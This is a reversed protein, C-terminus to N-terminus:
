KRRRKKLIVAILIALTLTILLWFILNSSSKLDIPSTDGILVLGAWYQPSITRGKAMGIYDLKAKQLAEDKPLGKKLYGYFNEIIIASSQEDIKWLSTLISESGAYNFAHALSIMGEGAQYTPKGTECATLIALNSALNQNYIEYSYLSNDEDTVNKAFILRSLEPSVNNSEAHTGIHIIKHEKAQKTFIQKSANENLFSTGNFLKSHKKAIEATFPQSLLTLYTKDFAISDTIKIKYAEKMEDNFEPAFAIFDNTYDITNRQKDLLLLSYNYSISHKALLCNTALDKFSNIKNPTLMEFSLNFLEGDPIIIVNKSKILDELPKWLANYLQYLTTDIESLQQTTKSNLSTIQTSINKSELKTLHIETESAVFAHLMNNIKLYRVVTTQKPIKSQLNDLDAEIKAYRMQYYEPYTTKLTDLFIEWSKEAKFFSDIKANNESLSESLSTKLKKERKFISQPINAFNVDHKLNLRTRINNYINAEHLEIINNLYKPKKTLEYLELYLKKSFNSIIKSESLLAYIDESNFITAKRKELITIAQNLTNTLQLLFKENKEESLHYISKAELLLISPKKFEIQLSDMASSATKIKNKLYTNGKEAWEYAMKYDGVDFYVNSLTVIEKLLPFNNDGGNKFTYNYSKLAMAIAKEKQNNAALFLAYDRLLILYARSYETPYAKNYLAESEEYIKTATIADGKEAYARAKLQLLEAEVAHYDSSFSKLKKLGKNVTEIGKDLDRLEIEATAIQSINTVLRPNTPEYVLQKKEYAYKLMDYAKTIFGIDNYFAALNSFASALLQEAKTVLEEDKSNTIIMQFDKIIEKKTKIADSVNGSDDQVLALNFKFASVYYLKDYDKLDSEEATKIAKNFYIEASDLKNLTWMSVAIGNYSDSLKYKKVDKSKEYALASEKFYVSANSLDYLAYYNSGIIYNIEGLEKQKIDTVSKAYELAKKSAELCKADNALHLYLQDMSLYAKFLTRKNSTLTALHDVFKQAKKAAEIADQKAFALQGIYLPYHYLSDYQKTNKLYNIQANLTVHAKKYDKISLLSDILKTNISTNKQAFGIQMVGLLSSFLMVQRACNYFRKM